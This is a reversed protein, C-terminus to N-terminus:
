SLYGMKKLKMILDYNKKKRRNDESPIVAGIVALVALVIAIKFAPEFLHSVFAYDKADQIEKWLMGYLKNNAKQMISKKQEASSIEKNIFKIAEEYKEHDLLEEVTTWIDNQKCSELM